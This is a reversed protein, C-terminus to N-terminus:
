EVVIAQFLGETVWDQFWKFVKKQLVEPSADSKEIANAIADSLPIGSAIDSLLNYADKTLPLRWLKYNRRYIVLWTDKKVVKPTKKEKIV